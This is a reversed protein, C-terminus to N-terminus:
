LFMRMSKSTFDYNQTVALFVHGNEAGHLSTEVLPRHRPVGRKLTKFCCAIM